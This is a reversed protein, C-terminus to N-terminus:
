PSGKSATALFEVARQAQAAATFIARRDQRLVKLWHALYSAHDERPALDLGLDACLFAAGLEAVLEERAYRDEPPAAAHRRDLRQEHGTWHTLEHALTAYYSEADVFQEFWPLQIYDAAPVYFASDGGHRIDAEVCSFFVEAAAIRAAPESRPTVGAYREPLEEIQDVNFVTYAKLFPINRTAEDGAEDTETRTIQDAYVVTAGHEGKRVHGGLALAQRFTMWIPSSFGNAAAESWLLLVNIGRYPEGSHRLPRSVAGSANVSWPKAWPRVGRDLDAIIADTVRDYLPRSDTRPRSM